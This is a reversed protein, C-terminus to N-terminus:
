NMRRSKHYGYARLVKALELEGAKGKRKGNIAM